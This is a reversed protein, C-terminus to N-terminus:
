RGIHSVKRAIVLYAKNGLNDVFEWKIYDISVSVEGSQTWIPDQGDLSPHMPLEKIVKKAAKYWGKYLVSAKTPVGFGKTISVDQHPVTWSVMAM